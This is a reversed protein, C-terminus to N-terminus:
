PRAWLAWGLLMALASAVFVLPLVELHMTEFQAPHHIGTWLLIAIRFLNLISLMALGVGAGIWKRGPRAPFAVVGALLVASAQYADCGPRVQLNFSPHSLYGGAARTGELFPALLAAVARANFAAYPAFWREKWLVLYVLAELLAFVVVFRLVFTRVSVPPSPAGAARDTTMAYLDGARPDATL